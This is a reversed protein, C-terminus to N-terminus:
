ICLGARIPLAKKQRVRGEGKSLTKFIEVEDHQVQKLM